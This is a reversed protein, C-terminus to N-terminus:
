VLLGQANCLSYKNNDNLSHDGGTYLKCIYGDVTAAGIAM